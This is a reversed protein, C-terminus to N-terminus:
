VQVFQLIMQELQKMDVETDRCPGHPRDNRIGLVPIGEVDMIGSILDRECAIAIILKPRHQQIMKRALTGGTAIMIKVGYTQFLGKLGHVSCKGCMKCLLPDATVKISCQSKQICHPSLILIEEPNMKRRESLVCINNIQIFFGQVHEKSVHLWEAAFITFPYLFRLGKMIVKPKFFLLEGSKYMHLLCFSIFALLLIITCLFLIGLAFLVHLFQIPMLFYLFALVGCLLIMILIGIAAAKTFQKTQIDM